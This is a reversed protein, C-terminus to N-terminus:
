RPWELVNLHKGKFWELTAKAPHKPDNDQQFTFWRGLRLDRSSQFLNGEIIERYKAGDMLGEFRLLKGTGASSLFAKRPTILPTPNTGSMANKKIALFSLKLRMQVAYRRGYTQPTEWM